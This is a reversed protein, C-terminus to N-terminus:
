NESAQLFWAEIDEKVRKLRDIPIREGHAWRIRLAWLAQDIIAIYDLGQLGTLNLNLLKEAHAYEGTPGLYCSRAKRKGLEKYYHIAYLYQRDGRTVTRLYNYKMSCRPCTKGITM